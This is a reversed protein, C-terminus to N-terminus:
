HAAVQKPTIWHNRLIRHFEGANIKARSRIRRRKALLLPLAIAAAVHARIVFWALRAGGGESAFEAAKGQGRFLFLLHWFYRKLSVFPVKLLMGSPFNKIAVYLRNREVLYAKLASARGASHSYRHEVIADPVYLCKWGAWVARLGLDTDECYLFFEDDFGGIEDLMTRRYLAASGSPFLAERTERYVQASDGHGQQKSSADGCILMGASDLLDTGQLRVQSALTGADQHQEAARILATIWSPCAVADDNLTIVYRSQSAQIGQNVAAGFGVNSTNEIIRASCRDSMLKRARGLGSNDVVIVEFDRRSQQELSRLCDTLASDAALTPVM